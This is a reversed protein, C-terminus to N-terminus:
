LKSIKKEEQLSAYNSNHSLLHSDKFNVYQSLSYVINPCLCMSKKKTRKLHTNNLSFVLQKIHCFFRIMTLNGHM